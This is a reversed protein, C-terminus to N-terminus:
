WAGRMWQMRDAIDGEYDLTDGQCKLAFWWGRAHEASPMDELQAGKVYMDFGQWYANTKITAPAQLTATNM